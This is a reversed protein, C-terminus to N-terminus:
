GARNKTEEPGATMWILWHRFRIHFVFVHYSNECSYEHQQSQIQYDPTCSICRVVNIGGIERNVDVIRKERQWWANSKNVLPALLQALFSILKRNCISRYDDGSHGTPYDVVSDKHTADQLLIREVIERLVAVAVDPIESLVGLFEIPMAMHYGGLPRPPSANIPRLRPNDHFRMRLNVIMIELFQRR